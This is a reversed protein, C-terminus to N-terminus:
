SGNIEFGIFQFLVLALHFGLVDAGLFGLRTPLEAVRLVGVHQQDSVADHGSHQKGRNSASRLSPTFAPSNRGM